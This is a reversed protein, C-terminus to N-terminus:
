VTCYSVTLFLNIISIQKGDRGLVDLSTYDLINVPSNQSVKFADYVM